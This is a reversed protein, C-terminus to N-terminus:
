DKRVKRRAGRGRGPSDARQKAQVNQAIENVLRSFSSKPITLKKSENPRKKRITTRSQTASTGSRANTRSASSNARGEQQGAGSNEESSPPVSAAATAMARRREALSKAGSKPAATSQKARSM